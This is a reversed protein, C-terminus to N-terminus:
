PTGNALGADIADFREAYGDLCKMRGRHLAMGDAVTSYNRGGVARGIAECTHGRKHALGYIMTRAQNYSACVKRSKLAEETTGYEEAVATIIETIQTM